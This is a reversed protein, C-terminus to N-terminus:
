LFNSTYGSHIGHITINFHRLNKDDLEIQYEGPIATHFDLNERMAVIPNYIERHNSDLVGNELNYAPYHIWITGGDDPRIPSYIVVSHVGDPLKGSYKGAMTGVGSHIGDIAIDLGTQYAKVMDKVTFPSSILGYRFDVLSKGEADRVSIYKSIRDLNTIYHNVVTGTTDPGIGTITHPFADPINIGFNGRGLLYAYYAETPQDIDRQAVSLSTVQLDDTDVQRTFTVGSQGVYYGSNIRRFSGSPVLTTSIANNAQLTFQGGRFSSLNAPNSDSLDITSISNPVSFEPVDARAINIAHGPVTTGLRIPSDTSGFTKRIADDDYRFSYGEVELFPTSPYLAWGELNTGEDSFYDNTGAWLLTSKPKNSAPLEVTAKTYSVYNITGSFDGTNYYVKQAVGGKDGTPDSVLDWIVPTTASGLPNCCIFADAMYCDM